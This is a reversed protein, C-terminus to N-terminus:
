IMKGRKIMQEIVKKKNKLSMAKFMKANASSLRKHLIDFRTNWFSSIGKYRLKGGM